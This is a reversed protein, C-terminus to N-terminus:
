SPEKANSEEQMQIVNLLHIPHILEGSATSVLMDEDETVTRWNWGEAAFEISNRTANQHLESSTSWLRERVRSTYESRMPIPVISVDNDLSVRRNNSRARKSSQSRGSSDTTLSEQSQHTLAGSSNSRFSSLMTAIDSSCSSGESESSDNSGEDSVMSVAENSRKNNTGKSTTVTPSLPEARNLSSPINSTTTSAFFAMTEFSHESGFFFAEEFHEDEEFSSDDDDLGFKLPEKFPVVNGLCSPFLEKEDFSPSASVSEPGLQVQPKCPVDNHNSCGEKGEILLKNQPISSLM